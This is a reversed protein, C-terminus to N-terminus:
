RGTTVPGNYAELRLPKGFTGTETTHGPKIKVIGGYAAFFSGEALSNFPLDFTGIEIGTYNFDVWTEDATLIEVTINDDTPAFPLVHVRTSTSSGDYWVLNPTISHGNDWLLSGGLTLDTAGCSMVTLQNWRAWIIYEDPGPTHFTDVTAAACRSETRLPEYYLSECSTCRRWHHFGVRDPANKKLSYDGSTSGDHQNGDPCHSLAQNKGFFLQGCKHCFRWDHEGPDAAMNNILRSDEAFLSHSLGAACKATDKSRHVLTKCKTCIRWDAQSAPFAVDPYPVPANDPNHKIHWIALGDNPL